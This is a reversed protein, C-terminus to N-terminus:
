EEQVSKKVRVRKEVKGPAIWKYLEHLIKDTQKDGSSVNRVFLELKKKIGVSLEKMRFAKSEGFADSLKQLLGHFKSEISYGNKELWQEQIMTERCPYCFLHKRLDQESDIAELDRPCFLNHM